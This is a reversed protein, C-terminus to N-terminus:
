GPGITSKKPKFTARSSLLGKYCNEKHAIVDFEKISLGFEKCIRKKKKDSINSKFITSSIPM